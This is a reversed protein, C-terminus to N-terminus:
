NSVLEEGLSTGDAVLVKWLRGRTEGLVEWYLDLEIGRIYRAL